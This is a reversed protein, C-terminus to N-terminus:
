PGILWYFTNGGRPGVGRGYGLRLSGDFWQLLHFSLAIEVGLCAGPEPRDGIRWASGLDSFLTAWIRRAALPFTGTGRHISWLPVQYSLTWLTMADGVWWTDPYGRLWRGTWPQRLWLASWPNQEPTGGLSYRSRRDPDGGAVAGSGQVSLVQDGPWPMPLFGDLYGWLSWALGGDSRQLPHRITAVLGERHGRATGVSHAFSATEDHHFGLTVRGEPSDRPWRPPSSAPESPDPRPNAQHFTVAWGAEIGFSRDRLPLPLSAQLGIRWERRWFPLWRDDQVAWSRDTWTSFDLALSPWTGDYRLAATVTPRGRVPDADFGAQWGLHGLADWGQISAGLRFTGGSEWALEPVLARPRVSPWPSYPRLGGPEPPPDAPGPDPLPGPCRDDESEPDEPWGPDDDLDAVALDWGRSSWTTFAVQRGDPRIAPHRVGGLVRTLRRRRGSELDLLFLDDIGGADRVFVLSRGDPMAVPNRDRCGDDTIREPPLRGDPALRWLDWRGERLAPFVVAGDGLVTGAGLDDFTGFPVPAVTTGDPDRRVLAVEGARTAVHWLGGGTGPFLDRARAQRTLRLSGGDHRHLFLDGYSSYLRHPVRHTTVLGDEQIALRGCGGQCPFRPVERGTRLDREVVAPDRHGDSRVYWLVNGDPRYLPWAVSEANRTLVTGEALGQATRRDRVERAHRVVEERFERYLDGFDSGLTRRAVTNMAFPVIRRGYERLFAVLAEPGVRRDLFSLFAGGYVYFAGGRPPDEPAVTLGSLTLFRGELAAMRLIREFDTGGARGRGPSRSEIWTAWGEIWWPPSAGNPLLSKGLLRNVIRPVGGVADMHVVHVLEHLVLTRHYNGFVSLESDPGPPAAWLVMHDYPWVRTFGNSDDGADELVIELEQSPVLGLTERLHDLAWRADEHIRRALPGAPDHYHIRLGPSFLTSWRRGPDDGALAWRPLALLGWALWWAWRRGPRTRM